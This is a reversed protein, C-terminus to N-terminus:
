PINRRACSIRQLSADVLEDMKSLLSAYTHEASSSLLASEKKSKKSFISYLNNKEKLNRERLDTIIKTEAAAAEIQANELDILATRETEEAKRKLCYAEDQISGVLQSRKKLIIEIRPVFIKAV